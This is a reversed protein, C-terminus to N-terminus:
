RARSVVLEEVGPLEGLAAGADATVVTRGTAVATAAIILDHAGRPRGARRVHALLRAHAAAVDLTYDEVPITAIVDDVFVSRAARRAEDALEVGVLLEAATIAAIAVDDEDGLVRDLRARGREARILVGTDLILRRAM